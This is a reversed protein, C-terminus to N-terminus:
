TAEIRIDVAAASNLWFKSLDEVKEYFIGGGAKIPVGEGFPSGGKILTSFEIDVAGPNYIYVKSYRSSVKNLITSGGGKKIINELNNKGNITVKM